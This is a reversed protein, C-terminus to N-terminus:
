AALFLSSVLSRDANGLYDTAEESMAEVAMDDKSFEELLYKLVSQLKILESKTGTSKFKELKYDRTLFHLSKFLDDKAIDNIHTIIGADKEIDQLLEDLTKKLYQMNRIVRPEQEQAFNIIRDNFLNDNTLDLDFEREEFFIGNQILFNRIVDIRNKATNTKLFKAAADHCDQKRLFLRFKMFQYKEDIFKALTKQMMEEHDM